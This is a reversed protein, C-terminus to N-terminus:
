VYNPGLTFMVVRQFQAYNDAFLTKLDEDHDYITWAEDAEVVEPWMERTVVIRMETTTQDPTNWGPFLKQGHTRLRGQDQTPRPGSTPRPPRPALSLGDAVCFATLLGTVLTM